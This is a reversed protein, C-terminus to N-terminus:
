QKATIYALERIFMKGVTVPHHYENFYNLAECRIDNFANPDRLAEICWKALVEPDDSVLVHKGNILGTGEIAHHSGIVFKGLGIAELVKVKVGAGHFLPAVVVRADLLLQHVNAVEGTVRINELLGLKQVSKAPKRGIIWFEADPVARLVEPFVKYAFWTAAEINNPLYMSGSFAIIPKSIDRHVNSVNLKIPVPLWTVHLKPYLQELVKAEEQSVCFIGRCNEYVYKEYKALKYSELLYVIKSIPNKYAKALEHFYLSEINHLRLIIPISADRIFPIAEGVQPQELCAIDIKSHRIISTIVDNLNKSRRTLASYPRSPHLLYIINKPRDIINVSVCYKRLMDRANDSIPGKNYCVLHVNAGAEAVAQIRTSIDINGGYMKDFPIDPTIWLINM